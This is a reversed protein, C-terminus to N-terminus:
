HGVLWPMYDLYPGVAMKVTVEATRAAHVSAKPTAQATVTLAAVVAITGLALVARWRSLRM